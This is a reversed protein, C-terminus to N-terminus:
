SRSGGSISPLVHVLAGAAVPTDARGREGDVFVNVHRRINGHEDLV